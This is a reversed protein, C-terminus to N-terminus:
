SDLPITTLWSLDDPDLSMDFDLMDGISALENNEYPEHMPGSAPQHIRSPSRGIFNPRASYMVPGLAETSVNTAMDADAQLQQNKRFFQRPVCNLLLQLTATLRPISRSFVSYNELVEIAKNWHDLIAEEPIEVMISASLRAAIQPLIDNSM